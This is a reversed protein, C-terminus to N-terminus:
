KLMPFRHIADGDFYFESVGHMYYTILYVVTSSPLWPGRYYLPGQPLEVDTDITRLACHAFM